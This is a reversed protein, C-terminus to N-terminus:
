VVIEPVTHFGPAVAITTADIANGVPYGIDGTTSPATETYKGNDTGEACYVRAGLTIGSFRNGGLTASQAAEIVAGSLGDELAVLRPHIVGGVTALARKWGTSYGLLDGKAVTGALTVRCRGSAEIVTCDKQADTLPM